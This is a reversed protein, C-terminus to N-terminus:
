RENECVLTSRCTRHVVHSFTGSSTSCTEIEARSVSDALHIKSKEAVKKRGGGHHNHQLTPVPSTQKDKRVSKEDCSVPLWCICVHYQSSVHMEGFHWEENQAKGEQVWTKM